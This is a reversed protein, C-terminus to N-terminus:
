RVEKALRAIVKDSNKHINVLSKIPWEKLKQRIQGSLKEALFESIPTSIKKLVQKDIGALLNFFKEDQFLADWRTLSLSLEEGNVVEMPILENGGFVLSIPRSDFLERCFLYLVSLYGALSTANTVEGFTLHIPSGSEDALIAWPKTEIYKSAFLLRLEYHFLILDLLSFEGFSCRGKDVYNEINETIGIENLASIFLEDIRKQLDESDTSMYLQAYLISAQGVLVGRMEDELVNPLKEYKLLRITVLPDSAIFFFKSELSVVFIESASIARRSRQDLVITAVGSGFLEKGISDLGNLFNVTNSIFEDTLEGFSWKAETREAFIAWTSTGKM